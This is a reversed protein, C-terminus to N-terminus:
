LTKIIGIIFLIVGLLILVIPIAHAWQYAAIPPKEPKNLFRQVAIGSILLLIGLIIM